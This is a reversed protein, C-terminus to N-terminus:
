CLLVHLAFGAGVEGGLHLEPLLLPSSPESEGRSRFSSRSPKEARHPAGRRVLWALWALWAVLTVDEIRRTFLLPLPKLVCARLGSLMLGCPM